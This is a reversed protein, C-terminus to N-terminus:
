MGFHRFFIKRPIQRSSLIVDTIYMTYKKPYEKKQIDRLYSFPSPTERLKSCKRVKKELFDIESRSRPGLMGLLNKLNKKEYWVKQFNEAWCSLRKPGVVKKIPFVRKKRFLEFFDDTPRAM